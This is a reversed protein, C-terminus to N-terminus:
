NLGIVGAVVPGSNIGIRITFPEGTEASFQNIEQQMDLAMLAIAEAHEPRNTKIKEIGHKEALRDFRSFIENLLYVLQTPSVRAALKTFGVVEAFLVTAEAFGHYSIGFMLAFGFAWFLGVSLGFDILNKIAVNISNKSRTLGSELCMFGAQMIFVLGSCLLIWLLDVM